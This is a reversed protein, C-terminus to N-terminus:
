YYFSSVHKLFTTAIKTKTDNYIEDNQENFYHFTNMLYTYSARELIFDRERNSIDNQFSALTIEANSEDVLQFLFSLIVVCTITYKVNLINIM